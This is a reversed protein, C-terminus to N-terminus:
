EEYEYEPVHIQLNSEVSLVGPANWAAQEADKKEVFSRVTGYLTVKSGLVDVRIKQVDITASRQFAAKIKEQVDSSKIKPKITIMNTVSSVGTLNEITTQINNREYEWEVEGDLRVNSDEVKIKIKEEKIASHWRLANLIAEAIEADTRRYEPSIGVQIDLAVAKVGAIRKTAQEAMTKRLYTDVIGSLTVIGDKVAVGIQSSILSPEWKLENMVDKQIQIDSKM